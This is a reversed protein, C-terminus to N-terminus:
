KKWRIENNKLLQTILTKVLDRLADRDVVDNSVLCPVSNELCRKLEVRNYLQNTFVTELQNFESLWPADKFRPDLCWALLGDVWIDVGPREGNLITMETNKQSRLVLTGDKQTIYGAALALCYIELRHPQEFAMVILPHLPNRSDTQRNKPFFDTFELLRAEGEPKQSSLPIPNRNFHDNAWNDYADYSNRQRHWAIIKDVNVASDFRLLHAAYRDTLLLECFDLRVGQDAVSEKLTKLFITNETAKVFGEPADWLLLGQPRDPDSNVIPLMENVSTRLNSAFEKNDFVGHSRLLIELPEDPCELQNEAVLLLFEIFTEIGDRLLYMTRSVPNNNLMEFVDMQLDFAGNREVWKINSLKERFDTDLKLRALSLPDEPRFNHDPTREMREWFYKRCSLKELSERIGSMELQLMALKEVLGLEINNSIKTRLNNFLELKTSISGKSTHCLGVAEAQSNMEELFKICYSLYGAGNRNVSQNQPIMIENIKGDLKSLFKAPDDHSFQMLFQEAVVKPNDPFGLGRVAKYDFEVPLSPDGMLFTLLLRNAWEVKLGKIMDPLGSRISQIGALGVTFIHDKNLRNKREEDMKQFLGGTEAAGKAKDLQSTILDAMAPFITQQLSEINDAPNKPSFLLLNDFLQSQIKEMGKLGSDLCYGPNMQWRAIERLTSFGNAMLRTEIQTTGGLRSFANSDLLCGEVKVKGSEGVLEKARKRTLIALDTILSSTGGAISGAVFVRVGNVDERYVDKLREDVWDLLQTSKKKSVINKLWVSQIDLEGSINRLLAVRPLQRNGRSGLSLNCDHAKYQDPIFWGELQPPLTGDSWVQIKPFLNEDLVFIDEIPLETGAFRVTVKQRNILEYENTDILLFRVGQPLKGVGADLLNKYIHTLVWRGTGGLGIFLANDPQWVAKPQKVIFDNGKEIIPEEQVEVQMSPPYTLIREPKVDCRRYHIDTGKDIYREGSTRPIVIYSLYVPREGNIEDIYWELTSQDPMIRGSKPNLSNELIIFNEVDIRQQVTIHSAIPPTVLEQGADIFAESLSTSDYVKQYKGNEGVVQIMVSDDAEGVGVSIIRIGAARIAEAEQYVLDLSDTPSGDSLLVIVKASEQRGSNQLTDRAKALGLHMETSGGVKIADIASAIDKQNRSLGIYEKVDTDFSQIAVREKRSIFCRVFRKAAVKAAHLRTGAGFPSNMSGSSDLLLVADISRRTVRQPCIPLGELELQVNFMTPPSVQGEDPKITQTFEITDQERRARPERCLLWALLLLLLLVLLVPWLGLLDSLILSRYIRTEQAGYEFAADDSISALREAQGSNGNSDISTSYIDYQDNCRRSSFYLTKSDASWSPWTNGANDIVQGAPDNNATLYRPTGGEFPVLYIKAKQDGYTTNGNHHTFAMWKGDPSYSPHYNFGEGSAGIVLQPIGGQSPITMIDCPTTILVNQDSGSARVFAIKNGDASWTPMTEIIGPESAGPLPSTMGTAADMIFIDENNAAYALKTGDLSWSPYSGQITPTQIARGLIDYEQLLGNTGNSIAAIRQNSESAAHCGTCNAESALQTLPQVPLDPSTPKIYLASSRDPNVRWFIIGQQPACASKALVGLLLGALIAAAIRWPIQAWFCRNPRLGCRLWSHLEDGFRRLWDLLLALGILLGGIWKWPIRSCLIGFLSPRATPNNGCSPQSTITSKSVEVPGQNDYHSSILDQGCSIYKLNLSLVGDYTGAVRPRLHVSMPQVDSYTPFSWTIVNVSTTALSPNISGDVLDFNSSDFTYVVQIDSAPEFVKISNAISQYISSLDSTAPAYYYDSSKSAISRLLEENVDPGLGITILREGALKISSARVLPDGANSNGDTLVIIAAASETRAQSALKGANSLGSAINTGNPDIFNRARMSDYQGRIAEASGFESFTFADGAFGVFGVRDQSFDMQSLFGDVAQIAGELKSSNLDTGLPDDMSSSIDLVLVIDLPKRTEITKCQGPDGILSLQIAVDDGANVQSPSVSYDLNLSGSNTQAEVQAKQGALILVLCFVILYGIRTIRKLARTNDM